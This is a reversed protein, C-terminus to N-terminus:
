NLNYISNILRGNEKSHKEKQSEKFIPPKEEAKQQKKLEEWDKQTKTIKRNLLQVKEEADKKMDAQKDLRRQVKM